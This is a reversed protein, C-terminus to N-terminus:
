RWATRFHYSRSGSRADIMRKGRDTMVRVIMDRGSREARFQHYYGGCRIIKLIQYGDKDLLAFAEQCSIDYRPPIYIYHDLGSYRAESQALPVMAMLGMTFSAPILLYKLMNEVGM